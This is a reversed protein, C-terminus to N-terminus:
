HAMHRSPSIYGTIWRIAVVQEKMSFSSVLAYGALIVLSFVGIVVFFILSIIISVLSIDAQHITWSLGMIRGTIVFCVFGLVMIIVFFVM